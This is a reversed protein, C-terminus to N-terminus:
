APSPIMGAELFLSFVKCRVYWSPDTVLRMLLSNLSKEKHLHYLSQAARYRVNPSRDEILAALRKAEEEDGLIGLFHAGWYRLATSESQTMLKIIPVYTAPIEKKQYLYYSIALGEGTTLPSKLSDVRPPRNGTLTIYWISLTLLITTGAVSIAFARRSGTIGKVAMVFLILVGAPFLYLSIKTLYLFGKMTFLDRVSREMEKPAVSDLPLTKGYRSTIHFREAEKSLVFDPSAKAREDGTLFLGNGLYHNKGDKIEQSFVLGQYIGEEPSVLSAALPSYEYYFSILRNGVTTDFLIKDRAKLFFKQKSGYTLSASVLVAMLLLIFLEQLTFHIRWPLTLLYFSAFSLGVVFLFSFNIRDDLEVLILCALGCALFVARWLASAFLLSMLLYALFLVGLLLLYFLSSNFSVLSGLKSLFETGPVAIIKVSELASQKEAMLLLQGRLLHHFFAGYLLISICFALIIRAKSNKIPLDSRLHYRNEM